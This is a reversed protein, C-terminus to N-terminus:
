LIKFSMLGKQPTVSIRTKLGIQWLFSEVSKHWSPGTRLNRIHVLYYIYSLLNRGRITTSTINENIYMTFTVMSKLISIVLTSVLYNFINFLTLIVCAPETDDQVTLSCMLSDMLSGILSDALSGTLSGTLSSTLSGILSGM